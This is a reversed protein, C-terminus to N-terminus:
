PDLIIEIDEIEIGKNELIFYGYKRKGINTAELEVRLVCENVDIRVSQFERSTKELLGGLWKYIVRTLQMSVERPDAAYFSREEQFKILIDFM